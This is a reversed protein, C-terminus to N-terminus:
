YQGWEELGHIISLIESIMSSSDMCCMPLCSELSVIRAIRGTTYVGVFEEVDQVRRV